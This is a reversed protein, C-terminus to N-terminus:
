RTETPSRQEARAELTTLVEAAKVRIAADVEAQTLREVAEALPGLDADANTEALREAGRLANILITQRKVNKVEEHKEMAIGITQEPDLMELLVGISRLNGHRTLGLAANYRVDPYDDELMEMLRQEAKEGGLVGLTFAAASRVSEHPDESTERLVQMVESDSRLSEGGLNEGLVAMAQIAAQRVPVEAVDRQTNAARILTPLGDLVHFEGLTRCLFFRLNIDEETMGATDIEKRLIEALQRAKAQDNRLEENAPDRLVTALEVAARWRDRGDQQLRRVLADPDDSRHTAWSVVVIIGLVVAAPLLVLKVLLERTSFERSAPEQEDSPIDPEAM